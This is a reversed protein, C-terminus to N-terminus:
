RRQAYHIIDILSGLSVPMALLVIALLIIIAIAANGDGREGKPQEGPGPFDTGDFPM